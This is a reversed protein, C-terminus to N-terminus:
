GWMGVDMCVERYEGQEGAGVSGGERGFTPLSSSTPHTFSAPPTAQHSLLLSLSPPLLSLSLFHSSNSFMLCMFLVCVRVCARVCVSYACVLVYKTMPTLILLIEFVFALYRCDDDLASLEELSQFLNSSTFTRAHALSPGKAKDSKESTIQDSIKRNGIIRLVRKSFSVRVRSIESLFSLSPSILLSNSYPPCLSLPLFLIFLLLLFFVLYRKVDLM